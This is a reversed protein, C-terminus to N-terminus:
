CAVGPRARRHIRGFDSFTVDPFTPRSRPFLGRIIWAMCISFYAGTEDTLRSLYRVACVVAGSRQVEEVAANLIPPRMCRMGCHPAAASLVNGGM